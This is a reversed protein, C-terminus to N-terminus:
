GDVHAQIETWSTESLYKPLRILGDPPHKFSHSYDMPHPPEPSDKDPQFDDTPHLQLLRNQESWGLDRNLHHYMGSDTGGFGSGVM